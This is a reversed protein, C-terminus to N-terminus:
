GGLAVVMVFILFIIITMPFALVMIKKLEAALSPKRQIMLEIFKKIADRYTVAMTYLQPSTLGYKAPEPFTLPKYETKGDKGNDSVIAFYVPKHKRYFEFESLAQGADKIERLILTAADPEDIIHLRGKKALYVTTNM